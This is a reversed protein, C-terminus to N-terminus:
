EVESEDEVPTEIEEAVEETEPEDGMPANVTILTRHPDIDLDAGEPLVVDEARLVDGISMESVDIDFAPPVDLPKVLIPLANLVVQVVGPLVKEMGHAHIPVEVAVQENVDVALFDIHTIEGRVPHRQLERAVALQMAGDVDVKLLANAGVETHMAHYLELADVDLAIPETGHGYMIAPVRGNRRLRGAAGKGTELRKAATINVQKAM